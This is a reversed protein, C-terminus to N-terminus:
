GFEGVGVRSGADQDVRHSTVPHQIHLIFSLSSKPPRSEGLAAIIKMSHFETWM